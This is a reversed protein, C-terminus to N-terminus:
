TVGSKLGIRLLTWLLLGVSLHFLLLIGAQVRQSVFSGADSVIFQSPKSVMAGLEM